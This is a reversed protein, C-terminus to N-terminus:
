WAGMLLYGAWFFPHDASPVEDLKVNKLRPEASPDLEGSRVLLVSRQWANAAPQHPLEQLFERVLEMSTRGGTRWRSLVLTRTGAAMLGCSSLLLDDGNHQGRLGDEAPTHYGPLVIVDPAGWPLQLWDALAGGPKGQDVQAPSWNLSDKELGEIDDLVVLQQWVTSLYRTGYPLRRSLIISNADQQKLQDATTTLLESTERSFLRGQVIVRPGSSQKPRADGVALGITPAYRIPVLDILAKRESGDNVQLLEFPVYWLFDDPVIVLEKFGALMSAPLEDALPAFLSAALEKWAPSTLREALLVQKQEYNGIERMLSTLDARMKAASPLMWTKYRKDPTLLLAHLNRGDAVFALIAPGDSRRQQIEELSRLPPFMRAAPDPRLALRLLM